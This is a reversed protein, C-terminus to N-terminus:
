SYFWSKKFYVATFADVMTGHIFDVGNVEIERPFEFDKIDRDLALWIAHTLRKVIKM